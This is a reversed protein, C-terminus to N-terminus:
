GKSSNAKKISSASQFWQQSVEEALLRNHWHHYQTNMKLLVNRYQTLLSRCNRLEPYDFELESLRLLLCVIDTSDDVMAENMVLNLKLVNSPSKKSNVQGSTAADLLSVPILSTILGTALLEINIANSLDRFRRSLAFELSNTWRLLDFPNEPLFSNNLGNRIARSNNESETNDVSLPESTSSDNVDRETMFFRRLADLGINKAEKQSTKGLNNEKSILNNKLSYTEDKDESNEFTLNSDLTNNQKLFSSYIITPDQLPLDSTLSVSNSFSNQISIRKDLKLSDIVNKRNELLKTKEEIEIEEALNMLQEITILSISNAILKDIQDLCNKRSNLSSVNLLGDGQEKILNLVAQRIANPLITRILDLYSSNIRYLEPSIKNCQLRLLELQEKPEYKSQSKNLLNM